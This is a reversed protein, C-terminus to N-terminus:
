SPVCMSCGKASCLATGRTSNARSCGTSTITSPSTMVRCQSSSSTKDPARLTTTQSRSIFLSDHRFFSSFALLLAFALLLRLRDRSLVEEPASDNNKKCRCVIAPPMVAVMAIVNKCPTKSRFVGPHVPEVPAWVAKILFFHEALRKLIHRILLARDLARALHGRFALCCPGLVKGTPLEFTSRDVFAHQRELVQTLAGPAAERSSNM